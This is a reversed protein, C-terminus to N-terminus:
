NESEHSINGLRYTEATLQVRLFTGYNVDPLFGDQPQEPLGYFAFYKCFIFHECYYKM